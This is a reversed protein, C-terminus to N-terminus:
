QVIIFSDPTLLFRWLAAWILVSSILMMTRAHGPAIRMQVVSIIAFGVVWYWVNRAFLNFFLDALLRPRDSLSSALEFWYQAVILLTILVAHLMRVKLLPLLDHAAALANLGRIRGPTHMASISAGAVSM